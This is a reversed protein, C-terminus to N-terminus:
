AVVGRVDIRKVELKKEIKARVETAKRHLGDTAEKQMKAKLDSLAQLNDFSLNGYGTNHKKM